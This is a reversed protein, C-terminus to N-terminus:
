ARGLLLNARPGGKGDRLSEFSEGCTSFSSFSPGTRPACPKWYFRAVYIDEGALMRWSAAERAANRRHSQCWRFVIRGRVDAETDDVRFVERRYVLYAARRGSEM